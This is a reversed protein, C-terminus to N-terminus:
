RPAAPAASDASRSDATDVKQWEGKIGGQVATSAGGLKMLDLKGLVADGRSQVPHMHVGTDMRLADCPCAEVCLGCVVCRLEDIEFVVPYKENSDPREGPHITICHAPCVTPCMMCAVCRVSGDERHMLRHLGRYRAPYHPKVDPYEITQVEHSKVVGRFTNKFFHKATLGLGKVIAPLFTREVGLPPRNVQVTRVRPNRESTSLIKLGNANLASAGGGHGHDDHHAAGM